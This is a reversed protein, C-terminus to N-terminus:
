FNEPFPPMAKTYASKRAGELQFILNKLGKVGVTAM